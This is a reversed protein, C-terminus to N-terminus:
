RGGGLHDGGAAWITRGCLRVGPYRRLSVVALCACAAVAVERPEVVGGQAKAAHAMLFPGARLGKHTFTLLASRM